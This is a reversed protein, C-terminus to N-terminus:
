ENKSPPATTSLDYSSYATPKEGRAIMADVVGAFEETHWHRRTQWWQQAGPYAILDTMTREVEGWLPAPLMGHRHAFYIAQSNKFTRNLFASFQAKSVPDLDQFSQMGRLYIASFERNQHFASMADGWRTTLENVASQRREQTQARIQLALYILSPIGVVVAALQGLATLMEWNM